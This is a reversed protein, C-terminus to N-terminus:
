IARGSKGKDIECGNTEIIVENRWYFLRALTIIEKGAASGTIVSFMFMLAIFSLIHRNM